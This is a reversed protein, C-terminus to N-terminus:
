FKLGYEEFVRKISAMDGGAYSLAILFEEKEKDIAFSIESCTARIEKIEKNEALAVMKEAIIEVANNGTYLHEIWMASIMAKLFYDTCDPDESIREIMDYFESKLNTKAVQLKRDFEELCDNKMDSFSRDIKRRLEATIRM